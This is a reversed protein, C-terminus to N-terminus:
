AFSMWFSPPPSRSSTFPFCAPHQDAPCNRLTLLPPSHHAAFPHPGANLHIGPVALHLSTLASFAPPACRSRTPSGDVRPRSTFSCCCCPQMPRVHPRRPVSHLLACICTAVPVAARSWWREPKAPRQTVAVLHHTESTAHLAPRPARPKYSLTPRRPLSQGGAVVARRM